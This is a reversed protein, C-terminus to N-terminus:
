RDARLERLMQRARALDRGYRDGPAGAVFRELADRALDRRGLGPAVTGLNYLVDWQRPDLELSRQWAAIAGDGDGSGSFLAVALMNWAEPSEPHIELARRLVAEADGHRQERLAVMGLSELTKPDEPDLRRSRELVQRAEAQRGAESLAIGLTTLDAPDGPGSAPLAKRRLIEVAEQARGVQALSLALQRNLGANAAGLARAQEMVALAAAVDGQELLIQALLSHGVAMEPREEVVERVLRAAQDLRRAGYLEVVQHILRNLEVLNKPDDEPGYDQKPLARGALYGLSRLRAQEEASASSSAVPPWTSEAPFDAALRRSLQPEDAFRNREEGPDGALDYLEPLPLEILKDRGRLLGRLPAWGQHLTASLAEFYLSREGADAALLSRGPLGAPTLEALGLAALITPLLDVHGAARHDPGPEWGTGWFLLPVKLTAEYAFLGHTPEGHEGLAEGHDSTVVVLAPPERGELFPSLLPELFADAAAVEALYPRDAFRSAYPEPAAYPAHPDFLHVWLFRKGGAAARWWDGAAAVVEDGRRESLLLETQRSSRPYGDDYVDFGRDLGFRSDLPYAAVFAATAYGADRLITAVTPIEPPVAFGSNDRVGHQFPYLGTLINAHSPLTVVNHAHVDGFVRGAAALRDLVPTVGAPGGAFGCADARLTDITILLLDGGAVVPSGAAPSPGASETRGCAALLSCLLVYQLRM